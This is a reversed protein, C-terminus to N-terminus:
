QRDLTEDAGRRCGGCALSISVYISYFFPIYDFPSSRPFVSSSFCLSSRISFVPWTVSPNEILKGGTTKEEEEEDAQDMDELVLDPVKAKVPQGPERCVGM